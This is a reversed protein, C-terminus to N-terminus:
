EKMLIRYAEYYRAAVVAAGYLALPIGYLLLESLGGSFFMIGAFILVIMIGCILDFRGIVPRWRGGDKRFIYESFGTGRQIRYIYVRILRSDNVDRSIYPKKERNLLLQVLRGLIFLVTLSVAEILIINRLLDTDNPIM